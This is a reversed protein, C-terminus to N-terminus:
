ITSPSRPQTADGTRGFILKMMVNVNNKQIVRDELIPEHVAKIRIAVRLFGANIDSHGSQRDLMPELVMAVTVFRRPHDLSVAHFQQGFKELM